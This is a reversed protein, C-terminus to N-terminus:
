KTNLLITVFTNFNSLCYLFFRSLQISIHNSVTNTETYINNYNEINVTVLQSNYLLLHLVRVLLLLYNPLVIENEYYM